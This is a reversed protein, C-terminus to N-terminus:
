GAGSEGVIGITEGASIALTVDRLAAVEHATSRSLAGGAKVLYHKRLSDVELLTV